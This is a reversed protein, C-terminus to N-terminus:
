TSRGMGHAPQSIVPRHTGSSGNAARWRGVERAHGGSCARGNRLEWPTAVDRAKRRFQSIPATPRTGQKQGQAQNCVAPGEGSKEKPARNHGAAKRGSKQSGAMKSLWGAPRPGGADGKVKQEPGKKGKGCQILPAWGPLIESSIEDLQNSRTSEAVKGPNEIPLATSIDKKEIAPGFSTVLGATPDLEKESRRATGVWVGAWPFTGQAKGKNGRSLRPHISAANCFRTGATGRDCEGEGQGKGVVSTAQEECTRRENPHTQGDGGVEGVV